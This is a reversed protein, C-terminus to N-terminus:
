PSFWLEKATLWPWAVFIIVLIGHESRNPAGEVTGETSVISPDFSSAVDSSRKNTPKFVVGIENALIEKGDRM